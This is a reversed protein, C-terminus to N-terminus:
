IVIRECGRRTFTYGNVSVQGTVTEAVQTSPQTCTSVIAPDTTATLILYAESLNTTPLYFSPDIFSLTFLPTGKNDIPAEANTPAFEDTYSLAVTYQPDVFGFNQTAQGPPNIAIRLTFPGSVQSKVTVIYDQTSPLAGRWFPHPDRSDSLPKKDAGAVAVSFAPGQPISVSMIQGQMASLVYRKSANASITDNIEVWTGYPAFRIRSANANPDFVVNPTPTPELTRTPLPTPTPISTDLKVTVPASAALLPTFQTWTAGGDMTKYLSTRGNEQILVWGISANIFDLRSVSRTDIQTLDLRSAVTQWTQAGDHSTCLANGCLAFIDKPSTVQLQPFMAVNDLLGPLLSWSAGGDQTAYFALRHYVTNGNNDIKTLQVSLLGNGGSFFTASASGVAADPTNKPLPLTQSQWTNGLDFSVQIKVAGTSEMSAMDGHVILIREPDYYFSDECLGCLHVTGPPLGVEATPAKVPIPAWTKGGDQTESLSYYINGAAVDGAEAWGNLADTFHLVFAPGLGNQPGYSIQAWTQGGDSTHLLGFMSSAKVLIPQWATQSDLYFSGEPGVGEGPTRDIWTQGGDATRLLRGSNTWAWGDKADIMQLSAIIPAPAPTASLPTATDTATSTAPRSTVPRLPGCGSLALLLIGIVLWLKFNTHM